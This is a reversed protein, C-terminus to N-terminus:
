KFDKRDLYEWIRLQQNLTYFKDYTSDILEDPCKLSIFRYLSYEPVARNRIHNLLKFQLSKYKPIKHKMTYRSKYTKDDYLM